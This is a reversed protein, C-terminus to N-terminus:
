TSKLNEILGKMERVAREMGVLVARSVISHGIYLGRIGQISAIKTVNFYNLGHGANVMLGIDLAHGVANIIRLLEKEQSKGKANAYAGTHIEVMDTGLQKSTAIDEPDPNIFLSVSMGKNQIKKIANSISRKCSQLDLGGETTLEERKEPVLTILDPKIQTAINIMEKTAAMELNLEVPAFEKLMKLDRDQIHRRDERLHITIGDAGGLIALAAAMLPDPEIGRRAQRLTAVHDVNIGLLM